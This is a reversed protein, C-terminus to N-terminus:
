CGQFFHALYLFFPSRFFSVFFTLSLSFLSCMIDETQGLDGLQLDAQKERGTDSRIPVGQHLRGLLWLLITPCVIFSGYEGRLRTVGSLIEGRYVTSSSCFCRTQVEFRKEGGWWKKSVRCDRRLDHYM